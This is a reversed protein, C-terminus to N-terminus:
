MMMLFACVLLRFFMERSIGFCFTTANVPTDPDPFDERSKAAFRMNGTIEADFEGKNTKVVYREKHEAIVRGPYFNGQNLEDFLNQFENTYGLTNLNM